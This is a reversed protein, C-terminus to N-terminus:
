SHPDHTGVRREPAPLAARTDHRLFRTAGGADRMTAAAVRALGRRSPATDHAPAWRGHLGSHRIRHPGLRTRTGASKPALRVDHVPVSDYM